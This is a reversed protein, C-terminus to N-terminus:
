DYQISIADNVLIEAIHVPFLVKDPLFANKINQPEELFQTTLDM